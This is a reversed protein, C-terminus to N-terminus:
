KIIVMKKTSIFDGVKLQYFYVGSALSSSNWVAKIAKQESSNVDFYFNTSFFKIM